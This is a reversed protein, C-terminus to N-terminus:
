RMSHLYSGTFLSNYGLVVAGIGVLGAYVLTKSSDSM